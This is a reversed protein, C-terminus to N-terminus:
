KKWRIADLLIPHKELNSLQSHQPCLERLADLKLNAERLQEDLRQRLAKRKRGSEFTEDIATLMGRFGEVQRDWENETFDIEALAQEAADIQGAYLKQRHREMWELINWGRKSGAKKQAVVYDGPVGGEEAIPPHSVRDLASVLGLLTTGQGSDPGNLAAEIVNRAGRFDGKAQLAQANKLMMPWDVVGPASPPTYGPELQAPEVDSPAGLPAAWNYITEFCARRKKILSLVDDWGMCESGNWVDEVRYETHFMMSRFMDRYLPTTEISQAKQHAEIFREAQMDEQIGTLLRVLARLDSLRKEFRARLEGDVWPHGDLNQGIDYVRGEFAEWAESFEDEFRRWINQGDDRLEYNQVFTDFDQGAKLFRELQRHVRELAGLQEGCKSILSDGQDRLTDLNKFQEVLDRSLRVYNLYSLLRDHKESLTQAGQGPPIGEPSFASESLERVERDILAPLRKLQQLMWNGAPDEGDLILLKAYLPLTEPMLDPYNDSGPAAFERLKERLATQVEHARENFWRHLSHLKDEYPMAATYWHNIAQQFLAIDAEPTLHDGVERMAAGIELGAKALPAIDQAQEIVEPANQALQRREAVRIERELESGLGSLESLLDYQTKADPTYQARAFKVKARWVMYQIRDLLDDAQSVRESLEDEVDILQVIWEILAEEDRAHAGPELLRDIEGTKQEKTLRAIEKRIYAADEFGLTADRLLAEWQDIAERLRGAAQHDRALQAGDNLQHLRGLRQALELNLEQLDSLLEQMERRDFPTRIDLSQIRTQIQRIQQDRAEDLLRDRKRRDNSDAFNKIQSLLRHAGGPDGKQLLQGARELRDRDDDLEESEHRIAELRASLEKRLDSELAPRALMKELQAIVEKYGETALLRDLNLYLLRAELQVALDDFQEDFASGADAAAQAAKLAGEVKDRRFNTLFGRLRQLEAESDIRFAVESKLREYEPNEEYFPRLAYDAELTRLANGAAALNDDELAQGLRELTKRVASLADYKGKVKSLSAGIQLFQSQMPQFTDVLKKARAEAEAFQQQAVLTDLQANDENLRARITKELENGAAKVVESHKAGEYGALAEQYLRWAEVLTELADRDLEAVAAQAWAEATELATIAQEIEAELNEAERMRAQSVLDPVLDTLSVLQVPTGALVWEDLEPDVLEEFKKREELAAKAARPLHNKLERRANDLYKLLYADVFARAQAEYEQRAAAKPLRGMLAGFRDHVELLENSPATDIYLLTRVYQGLLPGSTMAELEIAIRERLVRAQKVLEQLRTNNPNQGAERHAMEYARDYLQKLVDSGAKEQMERQARDWLDKVLQYVRAYIQYEHKEERRMKVRREYGELETDSDGTVALRWKELEGDVTEDRDFDAIERTLQLDLEGRAEDIAKLADQRIAQRLARLDTVPELETEQELTYQYADKYRGLSRLRDVEELYQDIAM